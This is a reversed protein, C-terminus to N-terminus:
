ALSAGVCSLQVAYDAFPVLHEDLGRRGDPSMTLVCGLQSGFRALVLSHGGRGQSLSISIDSRVALPGVAM